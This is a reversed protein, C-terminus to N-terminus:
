HCQSKYSIHIQDDLNCFYMARTYKTMMWLGQSVAGWVPPIEKSNVIILTDKSLLFM